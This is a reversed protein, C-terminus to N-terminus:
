TATGAMRWLRRLKDLIVSRKAVEIGNEPLKADSQCRPRWSELLSKNFTQMAILRQTQATVCKILCTGQPLSEM